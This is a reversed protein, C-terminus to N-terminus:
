RKVDSPMRYDTRPSLSINLIKPGDPLSQRKFQQSFFRNLFNSVYKKATDIDVDFAKQVM